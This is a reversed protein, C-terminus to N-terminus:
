ARHLLSAIFPINSALWGVLGALATMCWGALKVAWKLQKNEDELYEVRPTLALAADLKEELASFRADLYDRDTYMKASM